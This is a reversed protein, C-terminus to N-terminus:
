GVVQTVGVRASWGFGRTVGAGPKATPEQERGQQGGVDKGGLAVGAEQQDECGRSTSKVGVVGQAGRTVQRM